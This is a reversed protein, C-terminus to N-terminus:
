CSVNRHTSNLPGSVTRRVSLKTRLGVHTLFLHGTEIQFFWDMIINICCDDTGVVRSRSRM